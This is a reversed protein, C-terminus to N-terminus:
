SHQRSYVITGGVITMEVRIDRIKDPKISLPSQSLVTFDALKGVEISGKVNEEFSAYAANVTYIRLADEVSIREQPLSKRAVAQYIGLLPSITEVPCDSGGTVLIRSEMLTKYPYTWRARTRGLRNRIWFDSGVFSPQVAVVLGLKKLRKLLQKNLVSAHEVRHRMKNSDKLAKEFASLVTSIARDGIAHICTQIDNKQAKLITRYLNRRNWVLMGKTSPEDDYPESLAATRAGLSGDTLIKVGGLRLSADGFGTTLGVDVLCCLFDIPVILYVRLPLKGHRRLRQLVRIEMPTSVLWHVGTLGAEIAKKSALVCAKSLKEESPRPQSGLILEHAAERVIGTPEGTKLDIDIQGGRVRTDRSIGTIELTRTNVVGIHGCVRTFVVPNNPAVSDLDWRSPYRREKLRDQNWGRGLIWNGKPSEQVRKLLLQQIERISTVGRLDVQTLSHGFDAMHVHTDILGPVVAQGHLDIIKTYKGILKEVKVDSGVEEIVGRRAAVAQALPQSPNMTVINGHILVLDALM